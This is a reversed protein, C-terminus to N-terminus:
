NAGLQHGLLHWSKGLTSVFAGTRNTNQKDFRALKYSPKPLFLLLTFTCISHFVFSNMKM